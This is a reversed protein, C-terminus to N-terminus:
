HNPKLEDLTSMCLQIHDRKRGSLRSTEWQCPAAFPSYGPGHVKVTVLIDVLKNDTYYRLDKIVALIPPKDPSSNIVFQIHILPVGNNAAFFLQANRMYRALTSRFRPYPLMELESGFQSFVPSSSLYCLSDDLLKADREGVQFPEGLRVTHADYALGVLFGLWTLTGCCSWPLLRRTSVSGPICALIELATPTFPSAWRFVEHTGTFYTFMTLIDGRLRKLVYYEYDRCLEKSLLRMELNIDRLSNCLVRGTNSCFEEGAKELTGFFMLVLPEYFIEDYILHRVDIVDSFGSEYRSAMNSNHQPTPSIGPLFLHRQILCRM